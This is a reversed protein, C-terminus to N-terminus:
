IAETYRFLIELVIRINKSAGRVITTTVDDIFVSKYSRSLDLDLTQLNLEKNQGEYTRLESLQADFRVGAGSDSGYEFADWTLKRVRNDFSSTVRIASGDLVGAVSYDTSDGIDVSLPNIDCFYENSEDTNRFSIRTAM